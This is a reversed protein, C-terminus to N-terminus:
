PSPRAASAGLLRQPLAGREVRLTLTGNRVGLERCVLITGFDVTTGPLATEVLTRMRAIAPAGSVDVHFVRGEREVPVRQAIATELAETVGGWAVHCVANAVAAVLSAYVGSEAELDSEVIELSVVIKQGISLAHPKVGLHIRLDAGARSVVADVILRDDEGHVQVSRISPDNRCSWQVLETLSAPAVEIRGSELSDIWGKLSQMGQVSKMVGVAKDFLGM